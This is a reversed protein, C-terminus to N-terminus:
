RSTGVPTAPAIVLAAPQLDDVVLVAPGAADQAVQMAHSSQTPDATTGDLAVQGGDVIVVITAGALSADNTLANSVRDAMAQDSGSKAKSSIKGKGPHASQGSASGKSSSSSSQSASSSPSSTSSQSSPSSQSSTSPQSSADTAGQVGLPLAFAAALAILAPVAYKVPTENMRFM